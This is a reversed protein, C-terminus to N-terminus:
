KTVQRAIGHVSVLIAWLGGSEASLERSHQIPAGIEATIHDFALTRRGRAGSATGGAGAAVFVAAALSDWLLDRALAGSAPPAVWAGLGM